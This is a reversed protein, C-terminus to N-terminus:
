QFNYLSLYEKEIHVITPQEMCHCKYNMGEEDTTLLVESLPGTGMSNVAAVTFTYNTHPTLGSATFTRDMVNVEGPIEAGDQEQLVMTYDTIENNCETCEVADWSVKVSTSTTSSVVHGPARNPAVFFM